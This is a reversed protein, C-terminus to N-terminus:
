KKYWADWRCWTPIDRILFYFFSSVSVAAVGFCALVIYMPVMFHSGGIVAIATFEVLLFQLAFLISSSFAKRVKEFNPKEQQEFFIFYVFFAVFYAFLSLLM